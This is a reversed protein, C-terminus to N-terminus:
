RTVFRLAEGVSIDGEEARLMAIAVRSALFLLDGEGLGGEEEEEGPPLVWALNRM